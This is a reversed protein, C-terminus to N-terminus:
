ILKHKVLYARAQSNTKIGATDLADTFTEPNVGENRWPYSLIMILADMDTMQNKSKLYMYATPNTDIKNEKMARKIDQEESSPNKLELVKFAETVFLDDPRYYGDALGSQISKLIIKSTNGKQLVSYETQVMLAFVAILYSIDPIMKDYKKTIPHFAEILSIDDRLSNPFSLSPWGPSGEEFSPYLTYIQKALDEALSQADEDEEIETPSAGELRNEIVRELRPFCDTILKAALLSIHKENKDSLSNTKLDKVSAM